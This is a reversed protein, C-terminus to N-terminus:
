KKSVKDTEPGPLQQFSFFSGWKDESWETM